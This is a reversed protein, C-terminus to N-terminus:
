EAASRCEGKSYFESSSRSKIQRSACHARSSRTGGVRTDSKRWFAQDAAASSWVRRPRGARAFLPLSEEADIATATTSQATRVTRIGHARGMDMYRLTFGGAAYPSVLGESRFKALVPFDFSHGNVEFASDITVGSVSTNETQVYGIRKYLADLELGFRPKLRWEATAGVTYRRTAASHALTGGRVAVEGTEFYTTAPVGGKVGFRFDQGHACAALAFLLLAAM